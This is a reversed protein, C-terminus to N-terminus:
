SPPAGTSNLLLKSPTPSLTYFFRRGQNTGFGGYPKPRYITIIQQIVDKIASTKRLYITGYIKAFSVLRTNRLCCRTRSSDLCENLPRRYVTRSYASYASHNSFRRGTPIGGCEASQCFRPRDPYRCDTINSPFAAAYCGALKCQSGAARGMLFFLEAEIVLLMATFSILSVLMSLLFSAWVKAQFIQKLTLPCYLLTELTHREKEGVFASAAMISAAMIPIM